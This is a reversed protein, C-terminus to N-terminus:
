KKNRLLESIDKAMIELRKFSDMERLKLTAEEGRKLQNVFREFALIPGVSRASLIIGFIFTCSLLLLSIVIWSFLFLNQLKEDFVPLYVKLFAYAFTGMMLLSFFSMLSLKVSFGLQYHPDILNMERSNNEPWLQNNLRFLFFLSLFLGIVQIIDAFNFIYSEFLSFPLHIFDIAHGLFIRDIANGSIGAVFVALSFSLKSFRVERLFYVLVFVSIFLVLIFFTSFFITRVLPDAGSLNGFIIGRNVTPVIEFWKTHLIIEKKLIGWKFIQDVFLLFSYLAFQYKLNKM